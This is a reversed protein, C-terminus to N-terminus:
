RTQLTDVSGSEFKVAAASKGLVKCHRGAHLAFFLVEPGKLSGPLQTPVTNPAHVSSHSASNQGSPSMVRVHTGWPGVRLGEALELEVAGERKGKVMEGEETGEWDGGRAGVGEVTLGATAGVSWSAFEV